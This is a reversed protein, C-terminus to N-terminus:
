YLLNLCCVWTRRVFRGAPFIKEELAHMCVGEVEDWKVFEMLDERTQVYQREDAFTFMKWNKKPDLLVSLGWSGVKDFCRPMRVRLETLSTMQPAYETWFRQWGLAEREYAARRALQHLTPEEDDSDEFMHADVSDSTPPCSPYNSALKYELSRTTKLKKGNPTKRPVSSPEPDKWQHTFPCKRVDWPCQPRPCRGEPPHHHEKAEIEKLRQEDLPNRLDYFISLTDIYSAIAEMGADFSAKLSAEWAAPDYPWGWYLSSSDPHRRGVLIHIPIEAAKMLQFQKVVENVLMEYKVSTKKGLVVTELGYQEMLNTYASQSDADPNILHDWDFVPSWNFTTRLWKYITALLKETNDWAYTVDNKENTTRRVPHKQIM